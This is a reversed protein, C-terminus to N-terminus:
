RLMVILQKLDKAGDIPAVIILPVSAVYSIGAFAKEADYSLTKGYIAPFVANTSPALLLTHGDPASTAVEQAAVIAGRTGLLVQAVAEFQRAAEQQAIDQLRAPLAM